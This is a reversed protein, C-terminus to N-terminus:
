TPRVTTIDTFAKLDGDFSAVKDGTEFATAALYADGFDVNARIVRQLADLNRRRCEVDVVSSQAFALLKTAAVPRPLKCWHVLVYFVEALTVSSLRLQIRGEKASAFLRGAAPSQQSSDKLLFRLIVNADLQYSDSVAGAETEWRVQGM